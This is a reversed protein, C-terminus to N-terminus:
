NTKNNNINEKNIQSLDLKIDKTKINKYMIDLEERVPTKKNINNNNNKIHKQIKTDSSIIINPIHKNNKNTLHRKNNDINNNSKIEKNKSEKSVDKINKNIIANEKEKPIELAFMKKIM